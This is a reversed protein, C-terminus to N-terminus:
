KIDRKRCATFVVVLGLAIYIACLLLVQGAPNVMPLMPMPAGEFLGAAGQRLDSFCSVLMWPEISNLWPVARGLYALASTAFAGLMGTSVVVAGVIALSESRVLWLLWSVFFAYAVSVLWALALWLAIAGAGDLVLYSFGFLGFFLSCAAAAVLLFVAQVLAVFILKGGYYATRGKRDMPLNRVFGNKFDGWLFLAIFIGGVLGIVGGDLFIGAWTATPSHLEKMNLSRVEAIAEQGDAIAEAKDEESLGELSEETMSSEVMRVFDESCLFNMMGAAFAVEFVLLGACVWFSVSRLARYIDSRLCNLM